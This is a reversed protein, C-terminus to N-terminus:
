GPGTVVDVTGSSASAAGSSSLPGSIRARGTAEAARCWSSLGSTGAAYIWGLGGWTDGKRILSDDVGQDAFAIGEPQMGTDAFGYCDGDHALLQATGHAILDAVRAFLPRGTLESLALLDDLFFLSYIDTVGTGWIENIGGWGISRVGHRHLRTGPRSPVDWLSTWSAAVMAARAASELLEPRSTGTARYLALLARCALHAAEKDIVNPNDLTGGRYEDPDVQAHRVFRCAHEAARRFRDARDPLASAAHLLFPVPVATASRAAPGDDGFWSGQTIPDGDPTYARFWSGDPHQVRVLFDATRRVADRWHPREDGHARHLLYNHLLDEAPETILRLYTGTVDSPALYHLLPRDGGIPPVPAARALDYHSHNWGSPTTMTAVFFDCVRGGRDLWAEPDHEALVHAADLQRGTFGYELIDLARSMEHNAFSAGFARAPTTYGRDPDFNLVFGAGGGSWERYTRALGDRRLRVAEALTIPPDVPEIGHAALAREVTAAAADAFTPMQDTWFRYSVTIEGGDPGIPLYARSPTGDSDLASSGASNRYPVRAHLADPSFGVAGIDTDQLFEQGGPTRVPATDRTAPTLRLLGVVRGDPRRATVAPTAIRDESLVTEAHGAHQEPSYVAGPVLMRFGDNVHAKLALAAGVTGAGPGVRLRRHVTVGHDDASWVDRLEWDREAVRWGSRGVLAIGERTLCDYRALVPVHGLCEAAVPTPVSVEMGEARLVIGDGGSSPFPELRM